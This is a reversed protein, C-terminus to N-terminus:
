ILGIVMPFSTQSPALAIIIGPTIMPSPQTIPAPAITVFDSGGYETATPTGALIILLLFHNM